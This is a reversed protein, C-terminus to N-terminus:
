LLCLLPPSSFGHLDQQDQFHSVLFIFRACSVPSTSSLRRRRQIGPMGGPLYNFDASAPSLLPTAQPIFVSTVQQTTSGKLFVFKIKKEGSGRRNDRTFMKNASRLQHVTRLHSRMWAVQPPNACSTFETSNLLPYFDCLRSTQLPQLVFSKPVQETPVPVRSHCSSSLLTAVTRRGCVSM